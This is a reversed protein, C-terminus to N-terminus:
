LFKADTVICMVVVVQSVFSCSLILEHLTSYGVCGSRNLSAMATSVVNTSRELRALVIRKRKQM